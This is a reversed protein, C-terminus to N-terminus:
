PTWRNYEDAYTSRHLHVDFEFCVIHNLMFILLGFSICVLFLGNGRQDISYPSVTTGLTQQLTTIASTLVNSHREDWPDGGFTKLTEIADRLVKFAGSNSSVVARYRLM